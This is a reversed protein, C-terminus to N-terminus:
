GAKIAIDSLSLAHEFLGNPVGTEKGREEIHLRFAKDLDVLPGKFLDLVDEESLYGKKVMLGVTEFFGCWGILKLYTAENDTRLLGLTEKWLQAAHERKAVDNALPHNAAVVKEVDESVTAFQNRAQRMESSDFRADLELLLTAQSVQRVIRLQVGAFIAGIAAIVTLLIQCLWSARELFEPESGIYFVSPM